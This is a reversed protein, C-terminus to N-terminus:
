NYYNEFIEQRFTFEGDCAQCLIYVQDLYIPGPGFLLSAGNARAEQRRTHGVGSPSKSSGKIRLIRSRLGLRRQWNAKLGMEKLYLVAVLGLKERPYM